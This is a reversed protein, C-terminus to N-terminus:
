GTESGPPWGMTQGALVHFHLHDVTQGADRGCNTIVRYGHNLNMRRTLDRIVLLLRGALAEDEDALDDLSPIAKKPIVLFHVPAQPAIDQIAICDDDEHLIEAPIERDIIRTFVSKESM